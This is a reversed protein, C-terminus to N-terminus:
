DPHRSSMCRLHTFEKEGGEDLYNTPQSSLIQSPVPYDWSIQRSSWDTTPTPISTDDGSPRNGEVSVNLVSEGSGTAINGLSYSDPEEEDDLNQPAPTYVGASSPM